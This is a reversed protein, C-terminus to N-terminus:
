DSKSKRLLRGMYQNFANQRCLFPVVNRKRVGIREQLTRLGEHYRDVDFGKEIAQVTNFRNDCFLEARALNLFVDANKWENNIAQRCLEIGSLDGHMLKSIGSYSIYTNHYHSSIPVSKFALDFCEAAQFFSRANLYDIGNKFDDCCGSYDCYCTELLSM